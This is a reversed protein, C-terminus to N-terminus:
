GWRRNAAASHQSEPLAEAIQLQRDLDDKRRQLSDLKQQLETKEQQRQITLQGRETETNRRERTTEERDAQAAQRERVVEAERRELQEREEQTARLAASAEEKRHQLQSREAQAAQLEGGVEAELQQRRQALQEQTDAAQRRERNAEQKRRQLREREAEAEEELRQLRRREEQTQEVAQELQRQEGLAREQEDRAREQEDRAREQEGQTEAALAALQRRDQQRDQRSHGAEARLRELEQREEGSLQPRNQVLWRVKRIFDTYPIRVGKEQGYQQVAATFTDVTDCSYGLQALNACLEQDQASRRLLPENNLAPALEPFQKRLYTALQPSGNNIHLGPYAAQWIRGRNQRMVEVQIAPIDGELAQLYGMGNNLASVQVAQGMFFSRVTCNACKQIGQRLNQSKPDLRYVSVWADWEQLTSIERASRMTESEQELVGNFHEVPTDTGFLYVRRSVELLAASAGRHAPAIHTMIVYM